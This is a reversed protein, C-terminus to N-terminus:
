IAVLEQHASFEWLATFCSDWLWQHCYRTQQQRQYATLRGDHPLPALVCAPLEAAQLQQSASNVSHCAQMLAIDASGDQCANENQQGHMHM